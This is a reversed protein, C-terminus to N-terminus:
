TWEATFTGFQSPTSAASPPSHLDITLTGEYKGDTTKYSFTEIGDLAPIAGTPVTLIVTETANKHPRRLTLQGGSATITGEARVEGLPSVLGGGHLQIAPAAPAVSARVSIAPPTPSSPPPPSSPPIPSSPPTPAVPTRPSPFYIGQLSGTFHTVDTVLAHSHIVIAPAIGSLVVKHELREVNVNARHRRHM